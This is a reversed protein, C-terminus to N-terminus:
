SDHEDAQSAGRYRYAQSQGGGVPIVARNVFSTEDSLLFAVLNGVEVPRDFRRMPNVSVFERGFEEWGDEGAIKIVSGNIMDSTYCTLAVDDDLLESTAGFPPASAIAADYDPGLQLVTRVEAGSPPSAADAILAVASSDALIYDVEDSALRFNTPVAVAALRHCALLAEVLEIRNHLLLAVRDDAEVGGAALVSALRAARDHVEAHTRVEDGLVVAPQDPRSRCARGTLEPLVLRRSQELASHM